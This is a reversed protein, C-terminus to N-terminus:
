EGNHNLGGERDKKMKEKIHDPIIKGERAAQGLNQIHPNPQYFSMVIPDQRRELFAFPDILSAPKKLPFGKLEELLKKYDEVTQPPLQGKAKLAALIEPTLFEDFDKDDIM